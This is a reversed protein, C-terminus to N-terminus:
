TGSDPAVKLQWVQEGREEIGAPRMGIRRAVRESPSHHAAIHATFTTVGQERLQAVAASAAESAYGHRQASVALLWALDATAGTDSTTITAQVYGVPQEDVVIIWNLWTEDGHPGALQRRYRARLVSLSPPQGGIVDYLGPDALVDVMQEAHDLRLPDLRVREAATTRTQFM